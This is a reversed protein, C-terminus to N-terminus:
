KWSKQKWENLKELPSTEDDALLRVLVRLEQKTYEFEPGHEMASLAMVVDDLDGVLERCHDEYVSEAWRSLETVDYKKDIIIELERSLQKKTYMAFRFGNINFPSTLVYFKSWKDKSSNRKRKCSRAENKLRLIDTKAM